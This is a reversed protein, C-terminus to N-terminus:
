RSKEAKKRKNQQNQDFTVGVKTSLAEGYSAIDHFGRHIKDAADKKSEAEIDFIIKVSTRIFPDTDEMEADQATANQTHTPPAEEKGEVYCRDRNEACCVSADPLDGADYAFDSGDYPDPNSLHTSASM